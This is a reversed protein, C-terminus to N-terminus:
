STTTLRHQHSAHPAGTVPTYEDGDWDFLMDLLCDPIEEM